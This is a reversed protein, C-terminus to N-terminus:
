SKAPQTAVWGLKEAANIFNKALYIPLDESGQRLLENHLEIARTGRQVMGRQIQEVLGAYAYRRRRRELEWAHKPDHMVDLGLQQEDSTKKNLKKNIEDQLYDRMSSYRGKLAAGQLKHVQIYAVEEGLWQLIDSKYTSLEDANLDTQHLVNFVTTLIKEQLIPLSRGLEVGALYPIEKLFVFERIHEPLECFHIADNLVKRSFSKGTLRLFEEKTTWLGTRLGYFYGEVIVMANREKAPQTHLNENFQVSIIQNPTPQDYIKCYTTGPDIQGSYGKQKLKEQREEDLECMAQFRTHGAIVLYMYGDNCPHYDVSDYSTKYLHNIFDLYSAFADPTLRAVDIQNILGTNKISEKISDFEANKTHRIQALTIIDSLKLHESQREGFNFPELLDCYEGADFIPEANGESAELM